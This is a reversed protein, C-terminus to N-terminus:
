CREWQSIRARLQTSRIAWEWAEPAPSPIVIEVNQAHGCNWLGNFAIHDQDIEPLGNGLPGALRVGM